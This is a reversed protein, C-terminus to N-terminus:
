HNTLVFISNKRKCAFRVIGGGNGTYEPFVAYATDSTPDLIKVPKKGIAPKVSKQVKEKTCFAIKCL